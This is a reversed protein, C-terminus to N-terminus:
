KLEKLFNNIKKEEKHTILLYPVTGLVLVVIGAIILINLMNSDIYDSVFGVVGVLMFLVYLFLSKNLVIRSKERNIRSKEIELYMIEKLDSKKPM